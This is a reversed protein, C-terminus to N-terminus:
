RKGISRPTSSTDETTAEEASLRRSEATLVLRAIDSHEALESVDGTLAGTGRKFLSETGHTQRVFVDAAELRQVIPRVRDVLQATTSAGHMGMLSQLLLGDEPELHSAASVSRAVLSQLKTVSCGNPCHEVLAVILGALKAEEANRISGQESYQTPIASVALADQSPMASRRDWAELVLRRTRYEGFSRLESEKLVRFTESPYDSGMVDAPDLIYRLEDLSLGYLRAFYEDLEARLQTRREPNWAFPQGREGSPRPDYAALEDAWPKLDYATYTLELVRPVIFNLAQLSYSSPPLVPLQKMFYFSFNM